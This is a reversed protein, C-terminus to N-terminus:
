RLPQEQGRDFGKDISKEFQVPGVVKYKIKYNFTRFIYRKIYPSEM